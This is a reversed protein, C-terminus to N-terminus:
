GDDGLEDDSNPLVHPYLATAVREPRFDADSWHMEGKHELYDALARLNRFSQWGTDGDDDSYDKQLRGLCASVIHTMIHNRVSNKPFRLFKHLTRSLRVQFRFPEEKVDVVFQGENLHTDEQLSLLQLISSQLQMVSGLALRSGKQLNIRQGNWVLHVGDRDSDLIMSQAETCVVMPTFLPPDGLDDNNWQVTQRADDSRHIQRYSSMPSSVICAYCAQRYEILRDILKAGQIRHEIVYSSRDNGPHFDLSYRGNPFSLNGSELMPHEHSRIANSFVPSVVEVTYPTSM